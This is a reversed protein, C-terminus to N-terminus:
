RKRITIPKYTSDATNGANDYARVFLTYNGRPGSVRMSYPASADSGIMSCGGSVCYWFEVKAIGSADKANASFTFNRTVYSGTPSTITVTPPTTDVPNPTPSPTPSPTPNTGGGSGSNLNRVNLIGENIGDPDGSMAVQERNELLATKVQAPTASGNQSLYLAAAGAM